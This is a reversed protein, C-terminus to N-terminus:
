RNEQLQGPQDTARAIGDRYNGPQKGNNGAGSLSQAMRARVSSAVLIASCREILPRRCLSRRETRQQFGLTRDAPNTCYETELDRIEGDYHHEARACFLAYLATFTMGIEPNVTGTSAPIQYEIARGRYHDATRNTSTYSVFLRTDQRLM